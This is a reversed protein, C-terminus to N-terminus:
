VSVVEKQFDTFHKFFLAPDEYNPYHGIEEMYFVKVTPVLRKFADAITTGSIPDADGIILGLPVSANQIASKWRASQVKRENMYQIVKHLIEKGDNLTMLEWFTDIEEQSAQTNKGFIKKFTRHMTGKGMFKPLLFGIPTLLLKQIPRPHYGDQIIGGNSFCVSLLSFPLTSDNAQRALIEQGVSGGYDHTLIHLHEIGLEQVLAIIIDAQYTLLYNHETPKDSFGFGLMDLTLLNKDKNFLPWIKTWDWSSTPFGHILVITEKAQHNEFTYFIQHGKFEFYQGKAKWDKINM